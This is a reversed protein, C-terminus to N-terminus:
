PNELFLGARVFLPGHIVVSIKKLDVAKSKFM